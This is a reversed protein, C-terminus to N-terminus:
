KRGGFLCCFVTDPPHLSNSPPSGMWEDRLALVCLHNRGDPDDQVM